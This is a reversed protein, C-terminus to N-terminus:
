GKELHKTYPARDVDELAGFGISDPTQRRSDALSNSKAKTPDTAGLERLVEIVMNNSKKMAYDMPREGNSDECDLNAGFLALERVIADVGSEAALHIPSIGRLDRAAVNAGKQLLMTVAVAPRESLCCYHLPTRGELDRVDPDTRLGLLDRVLVGSARKAALHLPTTHSYDCASLDAGVECLMYLISLNGSEVAYHMPTKLEDDRANADAGKMLLASFTSAQGAGAAVHLANRGYQDTSNINAGFKLLINILEEQGTEAALHAPLCGSPGVRNVNAGYRCLTRVIEPLGIRSAIRLPTYGDNNVWNVSVGADILKEVVQENGEQAAVHLTTNGNGDMVMPPYKQLLLYEVVQSAQKRLAVHLLCNDGSVGAFSFIETNPGGCDFVIRKMLDVSNLEAANILLSMGQDLSKINTNNYLTEFMDINGSDAIIKFLRSDFDYKTDLSFLLLKMLEEHGNQAALFIPSEGKSDRRTGLDCPDQGAECLADQIWTSSILSNNAAALHLPTRGEQDTSQLSEASVGLIKGFQSGLDFAALIFAIDAKLPLLAVQTPQINAVTGLWSSSFDKGSLLQRVSHVLRFSRSDGAKRAHMTWCICAFALFDLPDSHGRFAAFMYQLCLIAMTDHVQRLDGGYSDELPQLNFMAHFKDIESTTELFHTLSDHLPLVCTEKMSLLPQFQQGFDREFNLIQNETIEELDPFFGRNTLKTPTKSWEKFLIDQDNWCHSLALLTSLDKVRIPAEAVVVFYLARRLNVGTSGTLGSLLDSYADHLNRPLCELVKRIMRATGAKSVRQLVLQVWLFSESSHALIAQTIVDRLNESLGRAVTLRGVATKVYTKIDVDVHEASGSLNLMLRANLNENPRSTLLLQINSQNALNTLIDIIRDRPNLECEDLADLVIFTGKMSPDRLIANFIEAYQGFDGQEPRSFVTKGYIHRFLKQDASLIQYILSQLVSLGSNRSPSNLDLFYARIQHPRSFFKSTSPLWQPRHSGSSIANGAFLGCLQRYLFKALVSKGAGGNGQIWLTKESGSLWTQFVQSFLVWECTGPSNDEIMVDDLWDSRLSSLFQRERELIDNLLYEAFTTDFPHMGPLDAGGEKHTTNHGLLHYAIDYVDESSSGHVKSVKLAQRDKM